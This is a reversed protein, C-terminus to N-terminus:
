FSSLQNVAFFGTIRFRTDTESPAHVYAKEEVMSKSNLRTYVM